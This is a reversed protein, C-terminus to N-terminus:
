NSAEIEKRREPDGDDCDDGNLGNMIISIVPICGLTMCAGMCYFCIEYGGTQDRLLGALPPISIAGVGQFMRILGYSSSIREPQFVDALLVPMLLYWSGLCFGYTAAAAALTYFSSEAVSLLIVALGAGLISFSAFIRTSLKMRQILLIFRRVM